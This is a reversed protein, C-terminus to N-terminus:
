KVWNANERAADRWSRSEHIGQWAVVDSLRRWNDWDVGDGFQISEPTLRACRGYIGLECQMAIYVRTLRWEQIHHDLWWGLALGFVLIALLLERLTFRM